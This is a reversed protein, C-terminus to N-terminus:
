SGKKGAHAASSSGAAWVAERMQRHTRGVDLTYVYLILSIGYFDLFLWLFFSFFCARELLLWVATLFMGAYLIVLLAFLFAFFPLFPARVPEEPVHPTHAPIYLVFPLFSFIYVKIQSATAFLREFHTYMYYGQPPTQIYFSIYFTYVKVQFAAALLREFFLPQWCLRPPTQICFFIYFFTYM